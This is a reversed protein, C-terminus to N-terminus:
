RLFHCCLGTKGGLNKRGFLLMYQCELKAISVPPKIGPPVVMRGNSFGRLLKNYQVGTVSRYLAGLITQKIGNNSLQQNSRFFQLMQLM